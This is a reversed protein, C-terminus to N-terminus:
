APSAGALAPVSRASEACRRDPLEAVRCGGRRIRAIAAAAKGDDLSLVFPGPILLVQYWGADVAALLRDLEPLPDSAPCGNDFFVDPLPLSLDAALQILAYHHPGMRWPDYPHCRLYAAARPRPAAATPVPGAPTAATDPAATMPTPGPVPARGPVPVPATATARALTLTM